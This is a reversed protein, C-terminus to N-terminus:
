PNPRAPPLQHRAYDIPSLYGIASHCRRPNYWGEIFEFVAMRAEVHSRFPKTLNVPNM